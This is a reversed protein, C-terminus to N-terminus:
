TFRATAHVRREAYPPLSRREALERLYADMDTERLSPDAELNGHHMANVLAEDVAVAVQTQAAEDCLDWRVLEQRVLGVFAAVRSPQNELVLRYELQELGAVEDARHGRARAAELVREATDSLERALDRKPTYSAAGRRLAQAAVEESGHATVVIVPVAPHSKRVAEVLQLGDMEPMQLDTVVLDPLRRGMAALAERGTAATEVECELGDRLLRAAFERDLRSDDVVPALTM